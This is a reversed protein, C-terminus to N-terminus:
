QQCQNLEKLENDIAKWIDGLHMDDNASCPYKPSDSESIISSFTCNMRHWLARLEGETEVTIELTLPRFEKKTKQVKIKM